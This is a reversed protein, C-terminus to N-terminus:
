KKKIEHGGFARRLSAVMKATYSNQIKKDTKSKKRYNLSEEIIQVEVGEEKATDVTWQAEGTAEIVGIIDKLKQDQSLVESTRDLLFGSIVTGKQWIKTVRSLDLRYSSKQLVEFGEGIGQMMAYEIGNHVMKVFHGAGAEGFYNHGGRPKALSDLIPKIYEYASKNGGVMLPYGNKFALIGGSVGIGLFRVGNKKFNQYRRETDKYFANGGDVVIDNKEIYKSVEKLVKETPEGVLVMSWIIRPKELNQILEKITKTSKLNPIEKKLDYVDESSRNWVIVEHGESVLKNVMRTGMKGLGIFGIKM